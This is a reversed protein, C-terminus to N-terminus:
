INYIVLKFICILDFLLYYRDVSGYCFHDHHHQRQIVNRDPRILSKATRETPVILVWVKKVHVTFVRISSLQHM